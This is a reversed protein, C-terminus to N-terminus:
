TPWCASERWSRRRWHTLPGYRLRRAKVGPTPPPRVLLHTLAESSLIYETM